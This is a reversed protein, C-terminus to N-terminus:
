KREEAEALTAARPANHRDACTKCLGRLNIQRKQFYKECELCIVYRPIHPDGNYFQGCPRGAGRFGGSKEIAAVIESQDYLRVGKHGVARHPIDFEDIANEVRNNGVSLRKAIYNISHFEQPQFM